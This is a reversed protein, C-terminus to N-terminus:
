ALQIITVDSNFTNNTPIALYSTTPNKRAYVNITINETTQVRVTATAIVSRYDFTSPPTLTANRLVGLGVTTGGVQIYNEFRSVVNDVSNYNLRSEIRYIGSTTVNFNAGTNTIGQPPVNAQQSWTSIAIATNDPISLNGAGSNLTLTFAGYALTLTPAPNLTTYNLQNCTINNTGVDLDSAVNLPITLTNSDSARLTDGTFEIYNNATSGPPNSRIHFIEDAQIEPISFQSYRISLDNTINIINCSVESGMLVANGVNLSNDYTFITTGLSNIKASYLIGQGMSIDNDNTHIYGTTNINNCCLDVCSIDGNTTLGNLATLFSCDISKAASIDSCFITSANVVNTAISPTSVGNLSNLFSCDISETCDINGYVQLDNNIIVEVLAGGKDFGAISNKDILLAPATPQTYRNTEIVLQGLSNINYTRLAYAELIEGGYNSDFSIGVFHPVTFFTTQETFKYLNSTSDYYMLSGESQKITSVDTLGALTTSGGGGQGRFTIDGTLADGSLSIVDIIENKLIFNSNNDLYIKWKEDFAISSASIDKLEIDGIIDKAILTECELLTAFGYQGLSTM